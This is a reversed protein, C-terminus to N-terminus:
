VTSPLQCHGWGPLCDLRLRRASEGRIQVLQGHRRRVEGVLHTALRGKLQKNTGQRRATREQDRGAQGRDEIKKRSSTKIVLRDIVQSVLFRKAPDWRRKKIVKAFPSEATIDPCHGLSGHGKGFFGQQPHSCGHHLGLNDLGKEQRRNSKLGHDGAFCCPDHMRSGTTIHDLKTRPTGMTKIRTGPGRASRKDTTTTASGIDHCCLSEIDRDKTRLSM